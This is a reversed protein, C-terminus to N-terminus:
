TQFVAPYNVKQWKRNSKEMIINRGVIIRIRWFQELKKEM